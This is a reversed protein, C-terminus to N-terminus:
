RQRLWAATAYKQQALERARHEIQAPLEKCEFDSCLEHAFAETFSEPLAIQQISGQHLLGARTRRQAAGAIKQGNALVDAAVPNAFCADSLKPADKAALEVSLHPTLARCIAEHVQSYIVRSTPLTRATNAPLIISYTLDDGHLVSGGGTWRRVVDRKRVEKAVEVFAGFYGFSLSPRAWSYFRLSPTAVSEFLAEDMAMNLAASRAGRDDYVHLEPFLRM